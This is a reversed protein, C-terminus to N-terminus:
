SGAMQHYLPVSCRGRGHSFCIDFIGDVCNVGEGNGSQTHCCSLCLMDQRFQCFSVVCTGGGANVRYIRSLSCNLVGFSYSVIYGYFPVHISYVQVHFSAAPSIWRSRKATHTYKQRPNQFGTLFYLFTISM